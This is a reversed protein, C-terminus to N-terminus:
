VNKTKQHVNKFKKKWRSNVVMAIIKALVSAGLMLISGGNVKNGAGLKAM